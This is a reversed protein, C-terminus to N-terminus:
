TGVEQQRRDAMRRPWSAHSPRPDRDMRDIPGDGGADAGPGPSTAAATAPGGVTVQGRLPIEIGNAQFAVLLRRRLESPATWRETAKVKGAVRLTVGLDGM